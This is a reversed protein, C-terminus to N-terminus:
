LSFFGFCNEINRGITNTSAFRTPLALWGKKTVSEVFWFVFRFWFGFVFVLRGEGTRADETRTEARVPFLFSPLSWFLPPLFRNAALTVVFVVLLFFSFVRSMPERECLFYILNEGKHNSPMKEKTREM